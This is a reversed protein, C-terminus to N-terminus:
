ANILWLSSFTEFVANSKKERFRLCLLFQKTQRHTM